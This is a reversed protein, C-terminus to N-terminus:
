KLAQRYHVPEFWAVLQDVDVDVDVDLFLRSGVVILLRDIFGHPM